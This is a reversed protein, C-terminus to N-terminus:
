YIVDVEELGVRRKRAHLFRSGGGSRAAVGGDVLVAVGGGVLATVGRGVHATAGGGVRTTAGGGVCATAGGGVRATAGGGVRTTAGRGVHAALSLNTMFRTLGIGSAGATPATTGRDVTDLPSCM